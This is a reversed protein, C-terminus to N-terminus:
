LEGSKWFSPKAVKQTKLRCRILQVVAEGLYTSPDRFHCWNVRRRPWEIAAFQLPSAQVQPDGAKDQQYHLELIWISPIISILFLFIPPSFRFPFMCFDGHSRGCAPFSVLDCAQFCPRRGANKEPEGRQSVCASSSITPVPVAARRPGSDSVQPTLSREFHRARLLESRAGM